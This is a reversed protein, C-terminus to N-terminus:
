WAHGRGCVGRQWAHGGAVCAGQWVHGGAVCGGGNVGGRGTSPCVGTFVYGECVDNAPLLLMSCPKIHARQSESLRSYLYALM